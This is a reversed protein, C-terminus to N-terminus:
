DQTTPCLLNSHKSVQMAPKVKAATFELYIFSTLM